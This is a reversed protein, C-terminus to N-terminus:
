CPAGGGETLMAMPMPMAIAALLSLSLSVCCYPSSDAPRSRARARKTPSFALGTPMSLTPFLISRPMPQVPPPRPIHVEGMKCVVEAIEGVGENSKFCVSQIRPALPSPIVSGIECFIFNERDPRPHYVVLLVSM